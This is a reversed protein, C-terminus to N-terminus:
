QKITLADYARECAIGAVRAADVDAALSGAREDARRFLDALMTNSDHEPTCSCAATSNSAARGGALLEDIRQRLRGAVVDAARADGRASEAQEHADKAIKVQDDARRKEEIRAADVADNRAKLSAVAIASREANFARMDNQRQHARGAVYAGGTLIALMLWVRWDLLTTLM